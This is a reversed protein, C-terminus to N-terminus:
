RQSLLALFSSFLTSASLKMNGIIIVDGACWQLGYIMQKYKSINCARWATQKALHQVPLTPLVSRCRRRKCLRFAVGLHLAARLALQPLLDSRGRRGVVCEPAKSSIFTECHQFPSASNRCLVSPLSCCSSETTADALSVDLHVVQSTTGNRWLRVATRLREGTDMCSDLASWQLTMM